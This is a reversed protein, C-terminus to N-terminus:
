LVSTGIGSSLSGRRYDPPLQLLCGGSWRRRLPLEQNPIDEKLPVLLVDRIVEFEKVVKEQEATLEAM